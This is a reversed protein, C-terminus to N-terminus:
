QRGGRDDDRQASGPDVTQGDGIRAASPLVLWFRAGAGPKNAVGVHGGQREVFQKVLTLGIGSGGGVEHGRAKDGRFFRKFVHPLDDPAIGSGNDEVELRVGAAGERVARLTVSGGAPTHRLANGILNALVQTTREPDAFVTLPGSSTDLALHVGKQEFRARFAEHSQELLHEVDIRAPHLELQGNEARSLVSLDDVLRELRGLQRHCAGLTADDPAFVGDELGELYGKLNSLPTRFEHSVDALLAVRQEESRELTAAMTNFGEALDGIEGPVRTDLRARYNGSAIRRSARKMARLPTVIRHTVFLGVAAAAVISVLAAWSLSNTLALRYAANLDVNMSQSMGETTLNNMTRMMSNVHRELFFPAFSEGTVFATVASVTIVLLYSPLLRWYLSPRSQPATEEAASGDAVQRPSNM